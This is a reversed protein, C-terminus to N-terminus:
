SGEREKRGRDGEKNEGIKGVDSGKERCVV